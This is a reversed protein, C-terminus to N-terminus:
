LFYLLDRMFKMATLMSGYRTDIEVDTNLHEIATSDACPLAGLRNCLRVVLRADDVRPFRAAGRSLFLSDDVDGVFRASCVCFDGSTGSDRADHSDPPVGGALAM